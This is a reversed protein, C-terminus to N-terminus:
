GQGRVKVGSGLGKGEPVFIAQGSVRDEGDHSGTMDLILNVRNESNKRVQSFM